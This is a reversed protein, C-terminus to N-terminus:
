RVRRIHREPRRCSRVCSRRWSATVRVPGIGRASAKQGARAVVMDLSPMVVILSDYLGWSWFADRPVGKIAGDGNNWWLLGYHKSAEPYREANRVPLNVLEPLPHSAREVFDAPLLRKGDWEGGNRYLWGLRAMAEVDAHIGSGFERRGVGEM